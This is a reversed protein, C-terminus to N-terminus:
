DCIALVRANKMRELIELHTKALMGCGVLCTTLPECDVPAKGVLRIDASRGIREREAHDRMTESLLKDKDTEPTWGLFRKAKESSYRLRRVCAVLYATAIPNGRGLMKMALGSFWGLVRAIPYPVRLIKLDPRAEMRLRKLYEVQTFPEDDLINFAENRVDPTEAAALAARACNRVHCVPLRNGGMGIVAVLNKGLAYGLRSIAWNGRPGYLIGPRLVIVNMKGNEAYELAAREAAMKSKNYIGLFLPNSEYPTDENISEGRRPKAMSLVSISSIQVFRSVGANEAVELLTRTGQESAAVFEAAPGSMTAAAHIITEIGQVARELSERDTLDGRVIEVGLRELSATKSTKRVLARIEHGAEQFMETLHSGLFGSAGTILVKM